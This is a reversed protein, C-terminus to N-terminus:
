GAGATCSDGVLGQYPVDKERGGVDSLWWMSWEIPMAVDEAKRARESVRFFHFTSSNPPLLPNEL